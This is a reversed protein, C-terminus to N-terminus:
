LEEQLKYYYLAIGKPGQQGAIVIYAPKETSYDDYYYYSKGIIFDTSITLNLTEGKDMANITSLLELGKKNEEDIHVSALNTFNKYAEYVGFRNKKELPGDSTKTVKVPLKYIAVYKNQYDKSKEIVPQNIEGFTLKLDGITVTDGAKVNVRYTEYYNRKENVIKIRISVLLILM